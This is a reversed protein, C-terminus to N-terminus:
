GEAGASQALFASRLARLTDEGVDKRIYWTWGPASAMEEYDAVLVGELWSPHSGGGLAIAAPEQRGVWRGYGDSGGPWTDDVYDILGNGFLQLRSLNREHAIVLPQPAEVSLIRSGEPLAALVTAVSDRQDALRHDRETVSYDLALATAAVVWALTAAVAVRGPVRRALLAAVGGIGLAASPLLFFIDPWGNFAKMSWLIGVVFMVAQAVLAASLPDRRGSRRVLAVTALALLALSGAIVAWLSPGYGTVMLEWAERPASLLSIQETYRANIIWFDDLFVQLDSVLTYAAATVVTPVIGGVAVRVLARIRGSDLGLLIAVVTGAFAALFVPQWTLTALAIFFGTTAWHQHATALLACIVFLVMATKERPGNSAYEIFGAFCLLAAASAIGALRSKFIDRGLVQVLGICAVSIVLFLLRMGFIDDLGVWRSVIVGAGPILHALPGARNVIADYPPVGEAVQQGGYSYVGLDRSLYGDFGHLAYVVAAVACSALTM